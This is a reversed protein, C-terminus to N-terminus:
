PHIYSFSTSTLVELLYRPAYIPFPFIRAVVNSFPVVIVVLSNPGDTRKRENRFRDFLYNRRREGRM